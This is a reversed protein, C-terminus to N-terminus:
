KSNINGFLGEANGTTVKAVEELSVGKIDALKQAILPIYSSENRKGRYPVPALYPADTELILYDLPVDKLSVDLGGNKFTVVGGIGMYFGVEQVRKANEVTGSFCHFVGNLTGDQLEEVIEIADDFSNRTHIAVPLQLEKAWALHRRFVEKQEPIFTKDWYYDLGIEGVGIFIRKSFEDEIVKLEQLYNEKVSCPHLGMMPYCVDPWADCVKYLADISTSDINPLLLKEVAALKARQITDSRDSDFEEAYIHCHTDIYYM